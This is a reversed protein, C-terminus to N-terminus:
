QQEDDVRVVRIRRAHYYLSLLNMVAGALHLLAWMAQFAPIRRDADKSTLANLLKVLKSM